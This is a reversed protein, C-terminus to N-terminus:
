FQMAPLVEFITCLKGTLHLEFQSFASWKRRMMNFTLITVMPFDKHRYILCHKIQTAAITTASDAVDTFPM